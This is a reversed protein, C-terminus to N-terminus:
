FGAQGNYASVTPQYGIQPFAPSAAMPAVNGALAHPNYAQGKSVSPPQSQVPQKAIKSFLKEMVDSVIVAIVETLSAGMVADPEERHEKALNRFQIRMCSTVTDAMEYLRTAAIQTILM